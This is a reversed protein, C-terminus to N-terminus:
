RKKFTFKIVCKKIEQSEFKLCEVIESVIEYEERDALEIENMKNFWASFVRDAHEKLLIENSAHPAFDLRSLLEEDARFNMTPSFSASAIEGGKSYEITAIGIELNDM